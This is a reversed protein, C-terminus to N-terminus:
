FCNREIMEQLERKSKSAVDRAVLEGNRFIVFTPLGSIDFNKATYKNRDVNMRCIKVRGRYEKGLEELVSEIAKCPLCWSAWFDVLVPVESQLVEEIFTRDTVEM